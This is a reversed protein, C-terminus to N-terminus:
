PFYRTTTKTSSLTQQLSETYFRPLFHTLVGSIYTLVFLEIFYPLNGNFKIDDVTSILFNTLFKRFIQNCKLSPLLLHTFKYSTYNYLNIRKFEQSVIASIIHAFMIYLSPKGQILNCQSKVQSACSRKQSQTKFAPQHNSRNRKSLSIIQGTSYLLSLQEYISCAAIDIGILLQLQVPLVSLQSRIELKWM